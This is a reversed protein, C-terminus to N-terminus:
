RSSPVPPCTALDCMVDSEGLQEAHEGLAVVSTPVEDEKPVYLYFNMGPEWSSPPRIPDVDVTEGDALRIAVREANRRVGGVVFTTGVETPIVTGDVVIGRRGARSCWGSAGAGSPAFYTVALCPGRSEYGYLEWRVDGAVGRALFTTEEPILPEAIVRCGALLLLMATALGRMM